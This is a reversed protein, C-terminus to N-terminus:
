HAKKRIVYVTIIIIKDTYTPPRPASVEKLEYAKLVLSDMSSSDYGSRFTICIILDKIKYQYWLSSCSQLPHPIPILTNQM